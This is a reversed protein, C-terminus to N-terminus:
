PLAPPRPSSGRPGAARRRGGCGCRGTAARIPRRLNRVPATPGNPTRSGIPKVGHRANRDISALVRQVHDGGEGDAPIGQAPMPVSKPSPAISTPPSALPLSSEGRLCRLDHLPHAAFDRHGSRLRERHVSGGEVREKMGWDFPAFTVRIPDKVARSRTLTARICPKSPHPQVRTRRVGLFSASPGSDRTIQAAGIRTVRVGDGKARHVIREGAVLRLRVM